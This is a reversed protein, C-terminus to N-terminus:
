ATNPNESLNNGLCFISIYDQKAGEVTNKM